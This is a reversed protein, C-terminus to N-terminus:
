KEEPEVEPVVGGTIKLIADTINIADSAFVVNPMSIMGRAGAVDGSSDLVLDFGKKKSYVSVAEVIEEMTRNFMRVEDQTLEKQMERVEDMAHRKSLALDKAAAEAKMTMERRAKDSLAPNKAEALAKEYAIQLTRVREELTDRDAEYDKLKRQILAKDSVSNPHAKVLLEIDVVAIEVARAAGSVLVTSLMLLFIFGKYM